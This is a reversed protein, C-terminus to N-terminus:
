ISIYMELELFGKSKLEKILRNKKLNEKKGTKM